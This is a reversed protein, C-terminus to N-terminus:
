IMTYIKMVIMNNILFYNNKLIKKMILYNNKLSNKLPTLNNKKVREDSM